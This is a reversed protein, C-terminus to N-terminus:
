RSESIVEVWGQEIASLDLEATEGFNNPWLVLQTKCYGMGFLSQKVLPGVVIGIDGQDVDRVLSGIPLSHTKGNKMM